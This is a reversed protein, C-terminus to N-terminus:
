MHRCQAVFSCALVVLAQCMVAMTTDVPLMENRASVKRTKAHGEERGTKHPSVLHAPRSKPVSM